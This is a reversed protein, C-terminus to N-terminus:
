CSRRTIPQQKANWQKEKTQKGPTSRLTIPITDCDVALVCLVGPAQIARVHDNVQDNITKADKADQRNVGLAEWAKKWSVKKM